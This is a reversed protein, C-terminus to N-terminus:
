MMFEQKMKSRLVSIEELHHAVDQTASAQEKTSLAIKGVLESAKSAADVINKLAEGTLQSM